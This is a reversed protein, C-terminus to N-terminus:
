RSRRPGLYGRSYIKLRERPFGLLPGVLMPVFLRALRGASSVNAHSKTGICRRTKGTLTLKSTTHV